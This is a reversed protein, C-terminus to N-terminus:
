PTLGLTQGLTALSLQAGRLLLYVGVVIVVFLLAYLIPLLIVRWGRLGNAEAAGLWSGFFGV